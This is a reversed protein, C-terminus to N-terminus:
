LVRSSFSFHTHTHTHGKEREEAPTRQRHTVAQQHDDHEDGTMLAQGLLQHSTPDTRHQLLAERGLAGLGGGQGDDGEVVDGHDVLQLLFTHLFRGVLSM